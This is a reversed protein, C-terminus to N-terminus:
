TTSVCCFVESVVADEFQGIIIRVDEEQLLRLMLTLIFSDVTPVDDMLKVKLRKVSSCVDESLSEAAAVHVDAKLLQRVLDKKMQLSM